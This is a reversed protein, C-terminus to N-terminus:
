WRYLAVTGASKEVQRGRYWFAVAVVPTGPRLERSLKEALPVMPRIMLFSVVADAGTLDARFFDGREIRVRPHGRARLRAVLWPLPSLEIGVVTAEPFAQAMALSLGGWGCGLEYLVPKEALGAGALLELVATREQIGLPVPPVGTRFYYGLLLGCATFTALVAIWSVIVEFM